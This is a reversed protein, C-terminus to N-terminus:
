IFTIARCLCLLAIGFTMFEDRKRARVKSHVEVMVDIQVAQSSLECLIGSEAAENLVAYESGEIDLKILVHSGHENLVHRKLLTTLTVGQVNAQYVQGEANASAQVDRHTSLTSSGWYNKDANKTDLYLVTPDNSIAGVTETYFHAWKVPRPELRVIQDQLQRLRSTFVPNGEIGVYCYHEPQLSRGELQQGLDYMIKKSWRVLRNNRATHGAFSSAGVRQQQEAPADSDTGTTSNALDDDCSPIGVTIFKGLSDGVNAGFDFFTFRCKETENDTGFIQPPTEEANTPSGAVTSAAVTSARDLTARWQGATKSMPITGGRTRGNSSSRCEDPITERLRQLTQSNREEEEDTFSHAPPGVMDGGRSLLADGSAQRSTRMVFFVVLQFVLAVKLVFM